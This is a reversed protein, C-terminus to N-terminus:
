TNQQIAKGLVNLEDKEDENNSQEEQHRHARLIIRLLRVEDKAKTLNKQINM